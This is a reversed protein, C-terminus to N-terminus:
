TLWRCSLADAHRLGLFRQDFDFLLGAHDLPGEENAEAVAVFFDFVDFLQEVFEGFQGVGEADVDDPSGHRAQSSRLAAVQEAFALGVFDGGHGFFGPGVDDNEVVDWCRLQSARASRATM